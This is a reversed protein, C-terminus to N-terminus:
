LLVLTLGLQLYSILASNQREYPAKLHVFFGVNAAYLIHSAHGETKEVQVRKILVM